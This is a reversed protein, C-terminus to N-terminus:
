ESLGVAELAEARDRFLRYSTVSGGRVTFVTYIPESVDVGSSKGRARQWGEVLVQDGRDIVDRVEYYYDDWTEMFSTMGQRTEERGDWSRGSAHSVFEVNEDLRKLATEYDGRAFDECIARVVEVNEQSM